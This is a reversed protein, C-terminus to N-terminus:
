RRCIIPNARVLYFLCDLDDRVADMFRIWESNPVNERALLQERGLENMKLFNDKKDKFEDGTATHQMSDDTDCSMDDEDDNERDGHIHEDFM